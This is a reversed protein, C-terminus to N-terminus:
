SRLEAFSFVSPSDTPRSSLSTSVGQKIQGWAKERAWQAAGLSKERLSMSETRLCCLDESPKGHTAAAADM